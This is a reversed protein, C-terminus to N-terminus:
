RLYPNERKEIGVTTTPGHGPCVTVDPPLTLVKTRLSEKLAWEDGGEFDTRGIAHDFLSDGSFLVGEAECYFCLGGATHGPTLLASLTHTGFDICDGEAICPGAPPLPVEMRRHILKEVQEAARAYLPLELKHMEPRLGYTDFIFQDGWIHDFHAHTNILRVPRLAQASVFNSLAQKEEARYAGCDVVVAQRTDDYLIYCNEEIPNCVFRQIHLM